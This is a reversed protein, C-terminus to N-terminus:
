IADCCISAIFMGLPATCCPTGIFRNMDQAYGGGSACAVPYGGAVCTSLVQMERRFIGTDTMALKGLSDGVHTDVGGDDLVLYPKVDSLLDPLYKALTQLYGDDDMAAPLPLDLDSKQKKSPFNVECHM